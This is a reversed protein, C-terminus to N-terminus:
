DTDICSQEATNVPVTEYDILSVSEFIILALDNNCLM